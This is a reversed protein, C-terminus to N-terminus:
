DEKHRRHWWKGQLSEIEARRKEDFVSCLRFTDFLLPSGSDIKKKLRPFYAEFHSDLLHELLVTAVAARMDEDPSEGHELVVEWVAEPDCDIYEGVVIMAQWRCDNDSDMILRRALCLYGGPRHGSEIRKRISRLAELRKPASPSSAMQRLQKLSEAM